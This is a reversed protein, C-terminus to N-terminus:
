RKNTRNKKIEKIIKLARRKTKVNPSKLYRYASPQNEKKM